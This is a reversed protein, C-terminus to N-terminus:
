AVAPWIRYAVNASGPAHVLSRRLRDTWAAMAPDANEYARFYKEREERSTFEYLVGHKAWGAVSVLKRVGLCGPTIALGPLRNHAYWALLGDEDQYSRTNFSGLQICASLSAGRERQAAAPGDVRAEETFINVRAGARMALMARDDVTTYPDPQGPAPPAFAHATEAGFLLIYDNGAPVPEEAYHLIKHVPDPQRECVYHAAWLVGPKKLQRPIFSEHLWALHPARDKEPLDYWVISLSRDLANEPPFYKARRRNRRM